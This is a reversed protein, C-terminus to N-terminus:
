RKGLEKLLKTATQNAGDKRKTLKKVELLYERAKDKNKERIEMEALTLLSSQYFGSDTDNALRTYRVSLEHYKKAEVQNHNIESNFALFYSAYRGCTPGYGVKGSDIRSLIVNSINATETYNGASYLVRAYYYQFYSNDPFTEYLYKSVEQAKKNDNEFNDYIRMLWVMAETRTYFSNYSVERLQKLGLAKDGKPFFWMLPRLSRYNEPIWVAFYNYLGVGFLIEPTLYNSEKCETLYNLARKGTITALAWENNDAYLRSKFGNAAALFFTAELHYEKNREYLATAVAISSDMCAIFASHYTKINPDPMIKWWVNLGSLFYPLPHWKYKQKFWYFQQEAKEFKFNYLDNMAETIELQM